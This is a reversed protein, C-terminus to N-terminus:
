PVASCDMPFNLAFFRKAKSLSRQQLKLNSLSLPLASLWPLLEEKWGTLGVMTSIRGARLYDDGRNRCEM